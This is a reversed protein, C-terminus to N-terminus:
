SNKAQKKEKIVSFDMGELEPRSGHAILRYNSKVVFFYNNTDFKLNRITQLTKKLSIGRSHNYTVISYALETIQNTSRISYNKLFNKNGQLIQQQISDTQSNINTEFLSSMSAASGQIQKLLAKNKEKTDKFSNLIPLYELSSKHINEVAEKSRKTKKLNEIKSLVQNYSSELKSYDSLDASQKYKEQTTLVNKFQNELNLIKTEFHSVEAVNGLSLYGTIGVIIIIALLVAIGSILKTKIMINKLM